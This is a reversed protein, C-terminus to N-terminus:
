IFSILRLIFEGLIHGAILALFLTFLFVEITTPNKFIKEIKIKLGFWIMGFFGIVFFSWYAIYEYM